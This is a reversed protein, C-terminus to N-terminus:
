RAEQREKGGGTAIREEAAKAPKIVSRLLDKNKESEIINAKNVEPEESNNTDVPKRQVLMETATVSPGRDEVIEPREEAEEMFLSMDASSDSGPEEAPKEPRSKPIEVM